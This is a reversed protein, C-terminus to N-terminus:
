SKNHSNSSNGDIKELNAREQNVLDITYEIQMPSHKRKTKSNIVQLSTVQKLYDVM